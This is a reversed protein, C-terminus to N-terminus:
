EVSVLLLSDLVSFGAAVGGDSDSGTGKTKLAM